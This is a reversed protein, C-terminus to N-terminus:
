EYSGGSEAWEFAFEHRDAAYLDDAVQLPKGDPDYDINIM